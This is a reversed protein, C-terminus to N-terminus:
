TLSGLGGLPSYDRNQNNYGTSVTAKLVRGREFASLTNLNVSGGFADGDMDPTIAKNVEISSLVDTPIMDLAVFREDGEPSPIQEGNISVNSLNPNTGRVEIYRAEGQDRQVSIAPVRRLADALNPDPFRGILDATVVNKINNATKQQSLARAQGQRNGQVMIGELEVFNDNLAINVTTTRNAEVAVPVEKTQYGIYSVVM